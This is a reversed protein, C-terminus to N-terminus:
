RFAASASWSIRKQSLLGGHLWSQYEQEDVEREEGCEDALALV